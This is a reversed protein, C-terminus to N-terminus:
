SGQPSGDALSKATRDLFSKRNIVSQLIRDSQVVAVFDGDARLVQRAIEESTSDLERVVATRVLRSGLLEGILQGTVWQGREWLETGILEWGSTVPGPIGKHQLSKKYEDFIRKATWGDIPDGAPNGFREFARAAQGIGAPWAEAYALALWPYRVELARRLADVSATGLVKLGLQEPVVFVVARLGRVRAVLTVAVFLRSTLWERGEGLDIVAYDAPTSDSLSEQLASSSDNVPANSAADRLEDVATGGWSKATSEALEFAVVGVSLRTARATLAKFADGIARRLAFVAILTAVPWAAASIM